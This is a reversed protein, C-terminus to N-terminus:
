TFVFNLLFELSKGGTELSPGGFVAVLSHLNWLKWLESKILPTIEMKEAGMVM